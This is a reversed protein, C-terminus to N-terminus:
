AGGDEGAAPTRAYYAAEAPPEGLSQYPSLIPFDSDLIFWASPEVFFLFSGRLRM